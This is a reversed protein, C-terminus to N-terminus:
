YNRNMSDSHFQDIDGSVLGNGVSEFPQAAILAGWSGRGRLTSIVRVNGPCLHRGWITMLALRFHLSNLVSIRLLAVISMSVSLLTLRFHFLLRISEDILDRSLPLMSDALNQSPVLRANLVLPLNLIMMKLFKQLLFSIKTGFFFSRRPTRLALFSLKGFDFALVCQFHVFNHIVVITILLVFLFKQYLNLVCWIRAPLSNDAFVQLLLHLSSTKLLLNRRMFRRDVDLILNISKPVIPCSSFLFFFYFLLNLLTVAVQLPHLLFCGLFDHIPHVLKPFSLSSLLIFLHLLRRRFNIFMVRAKAIQFNLALLPQISQFLGQRRSAISNRSFDTFVLLPWEDQFFLTM